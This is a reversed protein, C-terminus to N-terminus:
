WAGLETLARLTIYATLIWAALRPGPQTRTSTAVTGSLLGAALLVYIM